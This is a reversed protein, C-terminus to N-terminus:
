VDLRYYGGHFYGLPQGGLAEGHVADGIVIAHDGSTHIETLHCEVFAIVDELVPAGTQGVRYPVGNFRRDQPKAFHVSLDHQHENLVHICFVQSSSIAALTRARHDMCVLFRPPDLSLSTVASMTM